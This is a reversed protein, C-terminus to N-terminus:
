SLKNDNNIFFEDVSGTHKFLEGTMEEDKVGCYMKNNSKGKKELYYGWADKGLTQLSFLLTIASTQLEKDFTKQKNLLVLGGLRCM